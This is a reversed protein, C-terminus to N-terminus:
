EMCDFMRMTSIPWTGTGYLVIAVRLLNVYHSISNPLCRCVCFIGIIEPLEVTYQVTFNCIVKVLSKSKTLIFLVFMQSSLYSNISKTNPQKNEDRSKGSYHLLGMESSSSWVLDELDTGLSQKMSCRSKIVDGLAM